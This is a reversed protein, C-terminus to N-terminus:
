NSWIIGYVSLVMEDTMTESNPVLSRVYDIIDEYRDYLRITNLAEKFGSATSDNEIHTFYSDEMLIDVPISPNHVLYQVLFGPADNIIFLFDERSINTFNSYANLLSSYVNYADIRNGTRNGSILAKRYASLEPMLAKALHFSEESSILKEFAKIEKVLIKKHAIARNLLGGVYEVSFKM